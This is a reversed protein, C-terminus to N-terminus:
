RPEQFGLHPLLDLMRQDCVLFIVDLLFASLYITETFKMLSEDPVARSYTMLRAAHHFLLPLFDIKGKESQGFKELELSMTM